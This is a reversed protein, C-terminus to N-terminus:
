ARVSCLGPRREVALSSVRSSARRNAAFKVLSGSSSCRFASLGYSAGRRALGRQRAGNEFRSSHPLVTTHNQIPGIPGEPQDRKRQDRKAEVEANEVLLPVEAFNAVLNAVLNEVLNALNTIQRLM